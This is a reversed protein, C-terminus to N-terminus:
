TTGINFLKKNKLSVFFTQTVVTQYCRQYVTVYISHSKQLITDSDYSLFQCAINQLM